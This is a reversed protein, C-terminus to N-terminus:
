DAAGQSLKLADRYLFPVWYRQSENDRRKEFFGTFALEEAINKAKEIDVEWIAALSESSHNTKKERLAEVYKKKDPHEAYLTQELRVKSVEPLAEKFTAREFLREDSPPKIGNEYRKLQESKLANLFHIIERPSYAGTGDSTRSLLWKLTRPSKEGVDVQEPAIRYFIRDIEEASKLAETADIGFGNLIAENRLLRRVILNLASAENWSITVHKTIHSAERFGEEIIRNWIDTRLFIKLKISDFALLDLYARFLARLANKELESNEAFAVDLRDLLIWFDFNNEKAVSNALLFLHDVSVFGQAQQKQGPERFTIKGSVGTPLQSVTDFTLGGEISEAERSFFSRVYGLACQVYASLSRDADALGERALHGHLTKAKDGVFGYSTFANNLLTLIYLKWLNVFVKESEPPDVSLNQFAPAGRPNEGAILITGRDFLEDTRYVLLSYLASKGAGKPGYVIDTKGSFVSGWNETEVFYESLADAEDEAVREGFECNSLIQYQTHVATGEIM